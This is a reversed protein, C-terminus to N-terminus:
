KAPGFPQLPKKVFTERLSIAISTLQKELDGEGVSYDIGQRSYWDYTAGEVYYQHIKQTLAKLRDKNFRDSVKLRFDFSDDDLIDNTASLEEEDDNIICFALKSRLEADRAEIFRSVLVRDLDEEVDTALANKVAAEQASMVGDVRKYTLAEINKIVNAKLIKISATKM